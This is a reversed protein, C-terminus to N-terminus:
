MVAYSEKKKKKAQYFQPSSQSSHIAPFNALVHCHDTPKYMLVITESSLHTVPNGTLQQENCVTVM